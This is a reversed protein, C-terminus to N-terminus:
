IDGEITIGTIDQVLDRIEEYQKKTENRVTIQFEKANIYKKIFNSKSLYHPNMFRKIREDETFLDTIQNSFTSKNETKPKEYQNFIVHIDLHVLELETIKDFLYQVSQYDFIDQHTPILLVDGANCVNVTINDFTPATDIVAYDYELGEMAKKLRKLSATNRFDGLRVDAHVLDLRDNISLINEQIPSGSFINFINKEYIREYPIGSNYYFSLSNNALDADIALCKCGAGTLANLLIISITTKGTGGKISNVAITKM